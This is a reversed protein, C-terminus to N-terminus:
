QFVYTLTVNASVMVEGSVVTAGQAEGEKVAFQNRAGYYDGYVDESKISQLDGLTKGAAKALVEAKARADEVALELARHKGEPAKSSSFSLSYIQNAGAETGADIVSAVKELDRITIFLMNSANYVPPAQGISGYEQYPVEVFVSYNSTIVDKKEIGLGELAALIQRIAADTLRQAEQATQAKFSAGLELTATDASLSVMGTGTVTIEQALATASLSLVLVAVLLTVFTKKM